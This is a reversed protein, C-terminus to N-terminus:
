YLKRSFKLKNQKFSFRHKDSPLPLLDVSTASNHGSSLTISPALEPAVIAQIVRPNESSLRAIHLRTIGITAPPLWLLPPRGVIYAQTRHVPARSLPYYLRPAIFKRDTDEM